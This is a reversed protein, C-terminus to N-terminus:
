VNKELTWVSAEPDIPAHLRGRLYTTGDTLGLIVENSEIVCKIDTKTVTEPLTLKVTIDSDSQSWQYGLNDYGLGHHEEGKPISKEEREWNMGIDADESLPPKAESVFFINKEVIATYIPFARCEFSAVTSMQADKFSLTPTVETLEASQEAVDATQSSTTPTLRLWKFLAVSSNTSTSYKVHKVTSPDCLEAILVDVYLKSEPISAIVIIIPNEGVVDNTSSPVTMELQWKQQPDTTCSSSFSSSSHGTAFVFLQPGGNSFLCHTGNVFAFTPNTLMANGVSSLPVSYCTCVSVEGDQPFLSVCLVRLTEHLIM